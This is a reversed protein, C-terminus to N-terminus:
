ARAADRGACARVRGPDGAAVAGDGWQVYDVSRSEIMHDETMDNSDAPSEDGDIDSATDDHMADVRHSGRSRQPPDHRRIMNNRFAHRWLEDFATVPLPLSPVKGNKYFPRQLEEQAKTALHAPYTIM